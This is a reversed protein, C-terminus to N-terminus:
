IFTPHKLLFSLIKCKTWAESGMLNFAGFIVPSNIEEAFAKWQKYHKIEIPNNPPLTVMWSAKKRFLSSLLLYEGINKRQIVRVPYLMLPLAPDLSFKKCVEECAEEKSKWKVFTRTNVPNPLRKICDEGIGIGKLREADFSNLVGFMTTNYQPYMVKKIEKNFQLM